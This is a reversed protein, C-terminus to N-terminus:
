KAKSSKKKKSGAKKPKKGTAKSPNELNDLIKLLRDRDKNKLVSFFTEDLKEYLTLIERATERGLATLHAYNQRSDVRSAERHVLGAAELKIAAKTASSASIALTEALSGMTIGDSTLLAFLFDDQGPALKRQTLIEGRM